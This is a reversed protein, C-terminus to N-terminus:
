PRPLLYWREIEAYYRPSSFDPPGDLTTLRDVAVVAQQDAWLFLYPLEDRLREQMTRIAAARTTLDYAARAAAAADDYATDAFGVINRTPGSGATLAASFLASDDPDYVLTDAFDTSAAGNSWGGLLLDFDFPPAYRALLVSAYDVAQVQIDFGVRASTAAITQAAAVRRADDGRVYLTVQLSVGDRERVAAGAPLLWGAEDLLAAARELDAAATNAPVQDAWSGPLASNGIPRGIEGTAIVALGRLDVAAALARRVRLDNFPRGDRLNFGLFFFGNEPYAALTFGPTERLSSRIDWPVEALDLSGDLLAQRAIQPDPAVVLAIRGINPAGRHFAANREFGYSSGPLHQTLRFPGSGVPTQLLDATRVDITELVHQPLIPVALMSLLPASPAYLEIVVTAPDPASIAAITALEQLLASDDLPLSRLYTLTALVDASTLPLNDHWRLGPLLSFTLVKGDPSIQVDAALDPVAQMSPTIRMLGNYLLGIMLEEDRSRPQWPRLFSVDQSIRLNLQESLPAPVGPPETASPPEGIPPIAPACGVLLVLGLVLGTLRFLLSTGFMGTVSNQANMRANYGLQGPM